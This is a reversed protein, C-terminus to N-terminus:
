LAALDHDDLCHARRDAAPVFLLAVVLVDVRVRQEPLNICLHDLAGADVRRLDLIHDRTAHLLEALLAEVDRAVGPQLLAQRDLRRARGDITLAAGGLLGHVEGCRQDGRAHVVRHDARADLVHAM